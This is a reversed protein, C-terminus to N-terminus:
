RSADLEIQLLEAYREPTMLGILVDQLNTYFADVVNPPLQSDFVPAFNMEGTARLLELYLPSAADHDVVTPHSSPMGSNAVIINAYESGTLYHIMNAIAYLRDGTNVISTFYAWGSAAQNITGDGTGGMEVPVAPFAAIRTAAVIDEPAENEIVAVGWFGDVIMAAQGTFYLTRSQSKDISNFDPNYAGMEVLDVFLEVSAIFGPDTFQAGYGDRLSYYWEPPNFRYTLLNLTLSPAPWQERNGLALPYYGADRLTEITEIFGDWTDPFEYIGLSAFIDSNWYVNHNNGIQFPIAWPQGDYLYDEFVGDKFEDEWGPILDLLTQAPHVLGDQALQASMTGKSQMVDPIDGSAVYIMMVTEYEDHAISEVEVTVHPFDERFDSLRQTYARANADEDPNIWMNLLTIVIEEDDGTPVDADEDAATDAAPTDAVPDVGGCAMLLLALTLSMLLVISLYKKM